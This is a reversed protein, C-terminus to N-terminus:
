DSPEIADAHLQRGGNPEFGFDGTVVVSEGVHRSATADPLLRVRNGANDELVFYEQSGPADEIAVVTGRTSVSRGDYAEQDAALHALPVDAPEGGCGTMLVLMAVAAASAIVM